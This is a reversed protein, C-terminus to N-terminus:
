PRDRPKSNLWWVVYNTSTGHLSCISAMSDDFRSSSMSFQLEMYVFCRFFKGELPYNRGGKVLCLIILQVDRLIPLDGVITSQRLAIRCFRSPRSLGRILFGRKMITPQRCEKFHSGCWSTPPRVLLSVAVLYSPLLHICTILTLESYGTWTYPRTEM